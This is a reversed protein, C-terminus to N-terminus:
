RVAVEDVDVVEAEVVVDVTLVLTMIMAWPRTTMWKVGDVTVTGAMIHLDDVEAWRGEEGEVEEVTGGAIVESIHWKMTITTWEGEAV